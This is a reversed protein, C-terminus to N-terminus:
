VIQLQSKKKNKRKKKKMNRSKMILKLAGNCFNTSFVYNEHLEIM